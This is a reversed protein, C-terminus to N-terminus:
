LEKKYKNLMVVMEINDKLGAELKSNNSKTNLIVSAPIGLTGNEMFQGLLQTGVYENENYAYTENAEVDFKVAIFENNILTIVDEKTFTKDLMRKCLNCWDAQVFVLM